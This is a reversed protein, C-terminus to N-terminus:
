VIGDGDRVVGRGQSITMERKRPLMNGFFSEGLTGLLM